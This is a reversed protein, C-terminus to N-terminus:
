DFTNFTSSNTLLLNKIDDDHSISNDRISTYNATACYYCISIDHWDCKWRVAMCTALIYFGCLACKKNELATIAAITIPLDLYLPCELHTPIDSRSILNLIPSKPQFVGLLPPCPITAPTVGNVGLLFCPECLDWDHAFCSWTIMNLGGPSALGGCNGCYRRLAGRRSTKEEMRILICSHLPSKAALYNSLTSPFDKLTASAGCPLCLTAPINAVRTNIEESRCIAMVGFGSDWWPSKCNTCCLRNDLADTYGYM